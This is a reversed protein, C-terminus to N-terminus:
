DAINGYMANMFVIDVSAAKLALRVIDCQLVRVLPNKTHVHALMQDALDCALVLSPRYSQILPLLVGAGTGVDLVVDDRHLGSAAVIRRLRDMVAQPQPVDFVDALRNFYERQHAAIELWRRENSM